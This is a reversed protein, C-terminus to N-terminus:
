FDRWHGSDLVAIKLNRNKCVTVFDRLFVVRYYRGCMFFEVLLTKSLFAISFAKLRVYTYMELHTNVVPSLRLPSGLGGCTTIVLKFVENGSLVLM